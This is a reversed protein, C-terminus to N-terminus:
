GLNLRNDSEKGTITESKNKLNLPSKGNSNNLGKKNKFSISRVNRNNHKLSTPIEMMTLRRINNRDVEYRINNEIVTIKAKTCINPTFTKEKPDISPVDHRSNSSPQIEPIKAFLIEKPYKRRTMGNNLLRFHVIKPM